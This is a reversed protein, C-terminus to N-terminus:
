LTCRQYFAVAAQCICAHAPARYTVLTCVPFRCGVYRLHLAHEAFKAVPYRVSGQSSSHMPVAEAAYLRDPQNTGKCHRLFSGQRESLLCSEDAHIWAAAEHKEPSYQYLADPTWELLITIDHPLRHSCDFWWSQKVFTSLVTDPIVAIPLDTTRGLAQQRSLATEFSQQQQGSCATSAQQLLYLPWQWRQPAEEIAFLQTQWSYQHQGKDSSPLLLPYCVAIRSTNSHLVVRAASDESDLVISGDTQFRLQGEAEANEVTSSWKVSSLRYGLCYSGRQLSPLTLAPEVHLNRFKIVEALRARFRKIAYVSLQTVSNGHPDVDTFTSGSSALLFLSNDSYVAKVSLDDAVFIRSLSPSTAM